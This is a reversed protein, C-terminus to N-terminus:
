AAQLVYPADGNVKLTSSSALFCGTNKQATTATDYDPTAANMLYAKRSGDSDPFDATPVVAITRDALTMRLSDMKGKFDMSGDVAEGIRHSNNSFNLTITAEGQPKANLYIKVVGAATRKAAVYHWVGANLATTGVILTPGTGARFVLRNSSDVYLAFGVNTSVTDRSDYIMHAVNAEDRWIFGELTFVGAGVTESTWTANDGAGDLIAAGVGFKPTTTTIKFGGGPTITKHYKSSDIIETSNNAGEFKLLLIVLAFYPDNQADGGPPLGDYTHVRNDEVVATIDVMGKARPRINLIRAMVIDSTLSGFVFRTRDQVLETNPTETPTDTMFVRNSATGQTVLYPGIAEGETTQFRVYHNEGPVFTVDESLVLEGTGANYELVEGGAGWGPVDHSVAALEGYAPLMGDLETTWNIFRRRWSDQAVMYMGERLAHDRQTVGFIRAKSLKTPSSVGPSPILLPTWSQQIGDWYELLLGDSSEDNKMVYNLNLSNKVINRNNFVAAPLESYSDRALAAVGMRTILTGRGARAVSKLAEGITTRSEFIADFKDNRVSYYRTHLRLLGTLDIRADPRGEGYVSNRMIDAFAWIIERTPQPDSWASGDWVPLKRTVKVNVRRQSLGSLQESAKIKLGVFTATTNGVVVGTLFGKLAAWAIDHIARNNDLRTDTRKVRVQYRASSLNYSYSKRVPSNTALNLVESGIVTWSSIAVDYDDVRRAEVVWTVQLNSLSGDSEAYFLGRPLIFDLEVKNIKLGPFCVTVPGIYRETYMDQGSIEPANVVNMAVLTQSSVATGGPEYVASTVGTFSDISTDDIRLVPPTYNGQGICLLAYLYQDNDEYRTYPQCAYKPYYVNEGYLVPIPEYPSAQNGQLSTSYATSPTPGGGSGTIGSTNPLPAIANILATGAVLFAATALGTGVGVSVAGGLAGSIASGAGPAYVNVAVVLAITLVTRLADSGGGGGTDTPLTIYHILDGEEVAEGWQARM